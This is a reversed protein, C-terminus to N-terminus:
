TWRRIRCSMASTRAAWCRSAAASSSSTSRGRATADLDLYAKGYVPAGEKRAVNVFQFDSARLALDAKMQAFDSLDVSGRITLPNKNPATVAYDNFRVRSDAIRITDSSLRFSTGIM